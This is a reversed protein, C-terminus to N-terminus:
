HLACIPCIPIRVCDVQHPMHPMWGTIVQGKRIGRSPLFPRSLYAEAANPETRMLRHATGRGPLRASPRFMRSAETGRIQRIDSSAILVQEPAVNIFIRIGM